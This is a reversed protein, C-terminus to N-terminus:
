DHLLLKCNRGGQNERRCQHRGCSRERLSLFTLGTGTSQRAFLRKRATKRIARGRNAAAHARSISTNCPILGGVAFEAETPNVGVAVAHAVVAAAVPSAEAPDIRIGVAYAVVRCARAPHAPDVGVGVANAVVAAAVPSAEAPDIGVVVAYAVVAIIANCAISRTRM